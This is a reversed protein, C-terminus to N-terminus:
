RKGKTILYIILKFKGVTQTGVYIAFYRMSYDLVKNKYYDNIREENYLYGDTTM